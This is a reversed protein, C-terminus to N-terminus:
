RMIIEYNWINQLNSDIFHIKTFLVPAICASRVVYTDWRHLM